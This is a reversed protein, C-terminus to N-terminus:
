EHIPVLYLGFAAFPAHEPVRDNTARALADAKAGDTVLHYENVVAGWSAAWRDRDPGYGCNSLGSLCGHDAIDYGLLSWSKSPATRVWASSRWFDCSEEDLGILRVTVAIIVQDQGAQGRAEAESFYQWGRTEFRTAGSVTDTSRRPWVSSDVALPQATDRLLFESPRLGTDRWRTTPTARVDFGLVIESASAETCASETTADETGM